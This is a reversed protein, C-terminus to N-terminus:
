YEQTALDVAECISLNSGTQWDVSFAATNLQGKLLDIQSRMEKVSSEPIVCKTESKLKEALAFLKTSRSYEGTRCFLEALLSFSYVLYDNSGLESRIQIAEQLYRRATEFERRNLAIAGLNHLTNALSTPESSDRQIAEAELLATRAEDYREQDLLIAGVNSMTIALPATLGVEKYIAASQRYYDVATTEDGKVWYAYGINNLSTAIGEKDANKEKLALCEQYMSLASDFEGMQSCIIGAANLAKLLLVPDTGPKRAIAGQLWSRAETLYGRILWFRHMAAAIRLRYDGDTSWALASRVNDHDSEIMELFRKQNPGKLQPEAEEALGLFYDRHRTGYENDESSEILQEQGFQRVTELMYYRPVGSDSSERLVLSKKVLAALTPLVHDHELKDDACVMEMAELTWGNQFVALRRLLIREREELLKYSWLITGRLTQHREMATRSGRNLVKFFDTLRDLIQTPTLVDVIAAALEIALPIGDLKRCIELISPLERLDKALESNIMYARETFLQVAETALIDILNSGMPSIANTAPVDLSNVRWHNEGDVGLPERSTAIIKVDACNRLLTDAITAATGILHECNDLVILTKLAQLHSSLTELLSRGPQEIVNLAKAVSQIAAIEETIAALEVFWVGDPFEDLIEASVQLALRTKGCGGSGVLTILRSSKFLHCIETIQSKRGVFSTLQVPLNNPVTDLSFLPPFKEPIDLHDLQYIHEPRNLDKLRHFKLDLLSVKAPLEDVVQARFADSLLIQGGNTIKLIRDTRSLAVGFYDSGRLQVEGAHLAMRVRLPPTNASSWDASRLGLQAEVAANLANKANGFAVLFSDGMTKFITGDHRKMSVSMIHDHLEVAGLMSPEDHEFRRTSGAIDSFLFAVMGSPFDPM